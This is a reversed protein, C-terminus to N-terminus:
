RNESGVFPYSGRESNSIRRRTPLTPKQGGLRGHLSPLLPTADTATTAATAAALTTATQMTQM